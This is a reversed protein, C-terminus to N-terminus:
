KSDMVRLMMQARDFMGNTTKESKIITNLYEIGREYLIDSIFKSFSTNSINKNCM